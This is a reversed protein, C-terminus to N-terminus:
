KSSKKYRKPNNSRWFASATTRFPKVFFTTEFIKCLECSFMQSLIQRLGITGLTGKRQGKLVDSFRLTKQDKWPTSFPHRPFSYNIFNWGLPRLKISFFFYEPVLRKRHTKCVIIKRLVDAFPQKMFRFCWSYCLTFNSKKGFMLSAKKPLM